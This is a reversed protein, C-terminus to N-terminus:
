AHKYEQPYVSSRYERIKWQSLKLGILELIAECEDTQEKFFTLLTTLYRSVQTHTHTQTQTHTQTHEGECIM